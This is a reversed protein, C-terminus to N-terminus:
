TSEGKVLTKTGDPLLWFTHGLPGIIPIDVAQTVSNRRVLFGDAYAQARFREIHGHCFDQDTADKGCLINLDTVLNNSKGRRHSVSFGGLTWFRGCRECEHRGETPNWARKVLLAYVEPSIRSKM